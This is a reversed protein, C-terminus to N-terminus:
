ETVGKKWYPQWTASSLIQNPTALYYNLAIRRGGSSDGNLELRTQDIINDVGLGFIYKLSIILLPFAKKNM